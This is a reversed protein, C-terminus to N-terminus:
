KGNLDLYHFFRNKETKSFDDTKEEDEVKEEEQFYTGPGPTGKVVKEEGLYKM